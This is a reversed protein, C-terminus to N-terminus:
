WRRDDHQGYQKYFNIGVLSPDNYDRRNDVEEEVEEETEQEIRPPLVIEEEPKREVNYTEQETPVGFDTFPKM